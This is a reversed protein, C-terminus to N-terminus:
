QAKKHERQWDRAVRFGYLNSRDHRSGASRIASRIGSANMDWAGGRRVRINPDKCSSERASGDVPANNHNDHWCDQVWEWLNGSTDQVSYKNAPFQGVPAAFAWQDKGIKGRYNAQNNNAESGWFYATSQGGRAAHEWEAESPLRYSTNTKASLWVIYTQADHWSVCTVPYSDTQKYGPSLWNLKPNMVFPQGLANMDEHVCGRGEKEADTVYLTSEIFKRFQGFTVEHQSIEFPKINVAHSPFETPRCGGSADDWGKACGINTVGGPILLMNPFVGPKENYKLAPYDSFNLNVNIPKAPVPTAQPTRVYYFFLATAITAFFAGVLASSGYIKFWDLWGNQSRQLIRESARHYILRAEDATITGLKKEDVVTNVAIAEDRAVLYKRITAADVHNDNEERVEVEGHLVELWEKEDGKPILTQEFDKNSM